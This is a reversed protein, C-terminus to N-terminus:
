INRAKVFKMELTIRIEAGVVIGGTKLISNWSLGFDIRTSRPKVLFLWVLTAGHIRQCTPSLAGPPGDQSSGRTLLTIPFVSAASTLAM